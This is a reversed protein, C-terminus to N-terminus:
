GPWRIPCDDKFNLILNHTTIPGTPWAGGVGRVDACFGCHDNWHQKTYQYCLTPCLRKDAWRYCWSPPKYLQYLNLYPLLSTNRWLTACTLEGNNNDAKIANVQFPRVWLQPNLSHPLASLLKWSHSPANTQSTTPNFRTTPPTITPTNHLGKNLQAM